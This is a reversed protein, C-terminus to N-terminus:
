KQKYLLWGYLYMFLISVLSIPNGDEWLDLTVIFLLSTVLFGFGMALWSVIKNKLIIPETRDYAARRRMGKDADGWALELERCNKEFTAFIYSEGPSRKESHRWKQFAEDYVEEPTQNAM